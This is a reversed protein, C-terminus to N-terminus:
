RCLDSLAYDMKKRYEAADEQYRLDYVACIYGLKWPAHQFFVRLAGLMARSPCGERSLSKLAIVIIVIQESDLQSNVPRCGTNVVPM